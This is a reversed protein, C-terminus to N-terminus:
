SMDIFDFLTIYNDPNYDSLKSFPKIVTATSYLHRRRRRVVNMWDKIGRSSMKIFM